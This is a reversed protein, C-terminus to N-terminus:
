HAREPASADKEMQRHYAERRARRRLERGRAPELDDLRSRDARQDSRYRGVKAELGRVKSWLWFIL